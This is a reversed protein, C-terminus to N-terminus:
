TTPLQLSRRSCCSAEAYVARAVAAWVAECNHDTLRLLMWKGSLIHHRRGIQLLPFSIQLRDTCVQASLSSVPISLGWPLRSSPAFRFLTAGPPVRLTQALRTVCSNLTGGSLAEVATAQPVCGRGAQRQAAGRRLRPGRHPSAGSSSRHGTPQLRRLEFRCRVPLCRPSLAVCVGAPYWTVNM